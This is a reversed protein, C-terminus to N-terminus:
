ESLGEGKLRVDVNQQFERLSVEVQEYLRRDHDKPPTIEWMSRVVGDLRNQNSQRPHSSEAAWKAYLGRLLLEQAITRAFLKGIFASEGAM